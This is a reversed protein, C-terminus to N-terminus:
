FDIYPLEKRERQTIERDRKKKRERDSEAQQSLYVDTLYLMSSTNCDM